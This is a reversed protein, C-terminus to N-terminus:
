RRDNTDKDDEELRYIGDEDPDVGMEERELRALEAASPPVAVDILPEDADASAHRLHDDSDLLNVDPTPGETYLKGQMREQQAARQRERELRRGERAEAERTNIKSWNVTSLLSAIRVIVVIQTIAFVALAFLTFLSFVALFNSALWTIGTILTSAALVWSAGRLANGAHDDRAWDAIFSIYIALPIWGLAPLLWLLGALSVLILRLTGTTIASLVVLAFAPILAIQTWRSWARLQRWEGPGGMGEIMKPRPTTAFWVGAIPMVLAVSGLVLFLLSPLSTAGGLIGTLVSLMIGFVILRLGCTLSALYGAPAEGIQPERLHKRKNIIPTGCEPCRGGVRLGTLVYGCKRCTRGDRILESQPLTTM